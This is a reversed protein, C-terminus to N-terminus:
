PREARGWNCRRPAGQVPQSRSTRLLSLGTGTSGCRVKVTAVPFQRNRSAVVVRRSTFTEGDALTLQFGHAGAKVSTVNRKEVDPVVHRQYWRGYDIFRELPIPASLIIALQSVTLM